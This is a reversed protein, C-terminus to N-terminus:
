ELWGRYDPNVPQDVVYTLPITKQNSTFNGGGSSVWVYSKDASLAWDVDFDINWQVNSWTPPDTPFYTNSIKYREISVWTDTQLLRAYSNKLRCSRLVNNFVFDEQFMSNSRFAPRVVPYSIVATKEWDGGEERIWQAYYTKKGTTWYQIRMTYWTKKKWNFDTFVQKGAGEGGFEVKKGGRAYEITPTITGLDWLSMLLVHKGDKNQFGAYGGDWNHVAWYTNKGDDECYWDVSLVDSDGRFSWNVYMNPAHRPGGVQTCKLYGGLSFVTEM